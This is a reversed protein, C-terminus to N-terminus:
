KGPSPTTGPQSGAAPAAPHTTGGAPAAEMRKRTEAAVRELVVPISDGTGKASGIYTMVMAARISPQAEGQRQDTIRWGKPTKVLLMANTANFKGNGGEGVVQLKVSVTSADVQTPAVDKIEMQKFMTAVRENAFPAAVFEAFATQARQREAAPLELYMLGFASSLMADADWLEIVAQKVDGAKLREVYAKAADAAETTADAARASPVLSLVVSCLVTYILQHRM